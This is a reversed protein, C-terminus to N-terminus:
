EGTIRGGGEKQQWQLQKRRRNSGSIWLSVSSPQLVIAIVILATITTRSTQRGILGEKGERVDGGGVCDDGDNSSIEDDASADVVVGNITGRRRKKVRVGAGM